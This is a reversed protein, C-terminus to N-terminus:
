AQTTRYWKVVRFSIRTFQHRIIEGVGHINIVWVRFIWSPRKDTCEILFRKQRCLESRDGFFLRVETVIVLFFVKLHTDINKDGIVTVVSVIMLARCVRLSPIVVSVSVRFELPGDDTCNKSQKSLCDTLASM